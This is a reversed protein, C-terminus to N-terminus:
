PKLCADWTAHSLNETEVKLLSHYVIQSCMVVLAFLTM